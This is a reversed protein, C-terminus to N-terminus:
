STLFRVFKTPVACALGWRSVMRFRTDFEAFRTYPDAEITMASARRGIIFGDFNGFVGHATTGGDTATIKETLNVPYEYITRPVTGGIEAYIPRSQSDKLTRIYHMSLRNFFFRANGLYGEEIKAISESLNIATISSFSAGVTVSYGAKATLIGSVPDGTGNFLQNDLEMGQTYAFQEALLSAIDFDADAILENSAVGLNVMKKATLTVQGFTPEDKTKAQSEAVWSVAGHTLETPLKLTDSGMTIQRCAQLAFSSNRALQIMDMAYEDPVLYGGSADTTGILSTTKHVVINLLNKVFEDMGQENTFAPYRKPDLNRLSAGMKNIKRGLHIKSTTIITPAKVIPLDEIKKLRADIGDVSDKLPQMAEKVAGKIEEVMIAELSKNSQKNSQM